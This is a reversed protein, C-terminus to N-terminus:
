RRMGLNGSEALMYRHRRGCITCAYVITHQDAQVRKLTGSRKCCEHVGVQTAIARKLKHGEGVM